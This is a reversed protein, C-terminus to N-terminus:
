CQGNVFMVAQFELSVFFVQMDINKSCYQDRFLWIVIRINKTSKEPMM